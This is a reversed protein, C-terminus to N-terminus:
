KNDDTEIKIPKPRAEEAKPLDIELIGKQFTAKVGNADIKVPLQIVREFSGYRQEIRYYRDEKTEDVFKREGHIRLTNDVVTVEVDEAELGPLEVRVVISQDRELMDIAPTWGALHSSEGTGFAREFLKSLEAQMATLERWPDWRKVISTM